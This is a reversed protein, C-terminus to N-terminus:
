VSRSTAANASRLPTAPSEMGGEFKRKRLGALLVSPSQPVSHSGDAKDPHFEPLQDFKQDFNVKVLVRFLSLFWMSFYYLSVLSKPAVNYVCYSIYLIFQDATVRIMHYEHRTDIRDRMGVLDNAFSNRIVKSFAATRHVCHEQRWCFWLLVVFSIYEYWVQYVRM